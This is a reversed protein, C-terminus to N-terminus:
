IMPRFFSDLLKANDFFYYILFKPFVHGIGGVPSTSEPRYHGAGLGVNTNSISRAQQPMERSSRRPYKRTCEPSAKM